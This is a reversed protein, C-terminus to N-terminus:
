EKEVIALKTALRLQTSWPILRDHKLRGEVIGPDIDIAKAFRIVADRSLDNQALFQAYEQRPVLVDGAFKDAEREKEQEVSSDQKDFEIFKEKKSHLLVHGIEHFLSFWFRDATGGLISLQMLPNEGIWRVAGSVGTGPFHAVYVLRVGVEALLSQAKTSFDKPHNVTLARLRPLSQKLRTASFAKVEIKRGEIEGCRLWAAIAANKESGNDRKRYAVAETAEVYRLSNVGFFKWLCEVKRTADRTKEVLNRKVLEAYPFLSVLEVEGALTATREERAKAEQYNKELNIWFSASGGLANEFLLATEITITAEGNIIQSLHKETLGTRASLNKQSMGERDLTRAIIKGPHVKTSPTYSM